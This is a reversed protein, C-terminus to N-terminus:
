GNIAAEVAMRFVEGREAYGSFMDLSACAPSLLVIDGPRALRAASAVAAPLDTAMEVPCVEVLAGALRQADEGLVVAARARGRVAAALALFDQGKGRGGLILILPRELGAVAAM